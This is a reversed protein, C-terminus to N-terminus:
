SNSVLLEGAAGIKRDRDLSRMFLASEFLTNGPPAAIQTDDVIHMGWAPITMRRAGNIVRELLSTYATDHITNGVAPMSFISEEPISLRPSSPTSSRGEFGPTRPLVGASYDVGSRPTHITKTTLVSASRSSQSIYSETSRPTSEELSADEHDSRYVEEDAESPRDVGDVEVIGADKLIADVAILSRCGVVGILLAEATPDSIAFYKM